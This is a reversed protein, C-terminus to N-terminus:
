AEETKVTLSQNEPSINFVSSFYGEIFDHFKETPINFICNFSEFYEIIEGDDDETASLVTDKALNWKELYQKTRLAEDPSLFRYLEADAIVPVTMIPKYFRASVVPLDPKSAALIPRNFIISDKVVKFQIYHQDDTKSSIVLFSNDVGAEKLEQFAITPQDIEAENSDACCSLIICVLLTWIVRM